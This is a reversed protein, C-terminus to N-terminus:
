SSQSIPITGESRTSSHSLRASGISSTSTSEAGLFSRSRLERQRPVSCRLRLRPACPRMVHQREATSVAVATRARACGTDLSRAFSAGAAEEGGAAAQVRALVLASHFLGLLSLRQHIDAREARTGGASRWGAETAKDIPCNEAVVGVRRPELSRAVPKLCSRACSKTADRGTFKLSNQEPPQLGCGPAQLWTRAVTVITPNPSLRSASLIHDILRPARRYLSEPWGLVPV